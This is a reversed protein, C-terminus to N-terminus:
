GRVRPPKKGARPKAKRGAAEEIAAHLPRADVLESRPHARRRAIEAGDIVGSFPPTFLREIPVDLARALEDLVDVTSNTVGREIDSVTQRTVGAAHALQAQTLRARARALIIQAGIRKRTSLPSPPTAATMSASSGLGAARVQTADCRAYGSAGDIDLIGSM